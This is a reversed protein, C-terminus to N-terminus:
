SEEGTLVQVSTSPHSSGPDSPGVMASTSPRATGEHGTDARGPHLSTSATLDLIGDISSAEGRKGLTVLASRESIGLAGKDTRPKKPVPPVVERIQLRKPASPIASAGEDAGKPVKKSTKRVARRVDEVGLKKM